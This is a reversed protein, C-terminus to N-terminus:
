DDLTQFLLHFIDSIFLKSTEFQVGNQTAHHFRGGGQETGGPVEIM